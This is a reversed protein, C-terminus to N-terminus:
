LKIWIICGKKNTIRRSSCRQHFRIYLYIIFRQIAGICPCYRQKNPIERMQMSCHHCIVATRESLCGRLYNGSQPFKCLAFYVSFVDLLAIYRDCSPISVFWCMIFNNHWLSYRFGSFEDGMQDRMVIFTREIILSLRAIDSRIVLHVIENRDCALSM